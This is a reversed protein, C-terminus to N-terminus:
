ANSGSRSGEERFVRGGSRSGSERDASEAAAARCAEFRDGFFGGRPRETAKSVVRRARVLEDRREKEGERFSFGSSALSSAARGRGDKSVRKRSPVTIGHRSTGGDEHSSASRAGHTRTESSGRKRPECTRGSSRGKAM